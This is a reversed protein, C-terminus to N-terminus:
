KPMNQVVPALLTKRSHIQIYSFTVYTGDCLKSLNDVHMREVFRTLYIKYLFIGIRGIPMRVKALLLQRGRRIHWHVQDVMHLM